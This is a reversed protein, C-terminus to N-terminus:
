CRDVNICESYFPDSGGDGGFLFTAVDSVFNGVDSLTLNNLAWVGFAVLLVLAAITRATDLWRERQLDRERVAREHKYLWAREHRALHATRDPNASNSARVSICFECLAPDADRWEHWDDNM